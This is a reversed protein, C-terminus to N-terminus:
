FGSDNNTEAGALQARLTYVKKLKSIPYMRIVKNDYTLRGQEDKGIKDKVEDNAFGAYLAAFTEPDVGRGEQLDKLANIGGATIAFTNSITTASEYFGETALAAEAEQLAENAVQIKAISEESPGTAEEQAQLADTSLVHQTGLLYGATLLALAYATQKFRLM